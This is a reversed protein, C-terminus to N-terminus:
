WLSIISHTRSFRWTLIIFLLYIFLIYVELGTYESLRNNLKTISDSWIGHVQFPHWDYGEKRYKIITTSPGSFVFLVRPIKEEHEHLVVGALPPAYRKECVDSLKLEDNMLNKSLLEAQFGARWKELEEKLKSIQYVEHKRLFNSVSFNLDLHSISLENVSADETPTPTDDRILEIIENIKEMFKAGDAIRGKASAYDSLNTNHCEVIAAIDKLKFKDKRLANFLERADQDRQIPEVNNDALYVKLREYEKNDAM